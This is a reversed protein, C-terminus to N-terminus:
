KKKRPRGPNRHSLEPSGELTDVADFVEARGDRIGQQYVAKVVEAFRVGHYLDMEETVEDLARGVKAGAYVHITKNDPLQIEHVRPGSAKTGPM